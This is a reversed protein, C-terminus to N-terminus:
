VINGLKRAIGEPTGLEHHKKNKGIKITKVIYSNMIICVLKSTYNVTCKSDDDFTAISRQSCRGRLGSCSPCFTWWNIILIFDTVVLLWVPKTSNMAIDWINTWITM